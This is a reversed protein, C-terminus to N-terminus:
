YRPFYIRFVQLALRIRVVLLETESGAAATGSLRGGVETARGAIYPRRSNKTNSPGDPDGSGVGGSGPTGDGPSGPAIFGSGATSARSHAPLVLPGGVGLLLALTITWWRISILRSM